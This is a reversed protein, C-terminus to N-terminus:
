PPLTVAAEVCLRVLARKAKFWEGQYRSCALLSHVKGEVDRGGPCVLFPEVWLGHTRYNRMRESVDATYGVKILPLHPHEIAYIM